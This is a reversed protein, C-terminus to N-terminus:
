KDRLEPIYIHGEHGRIRNRIKNNQALQLTNYKDKCKYM